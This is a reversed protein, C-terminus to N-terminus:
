MGHVPTGLGFIGGTPPPRSRRKISPLYTNERPCLPRLALSNATGGSTYTHHPTLPFGALRLLLATVFTVREEMKGIVAYCTAHDVTIFYTSACFVVTFTIGVPTTPTLVQPLALVSSSLSLDIAPHVPIQRKSQQLRQFRRIARERAFRPYAPPFPSDLIREANDLVVFMKKPPLLSWLLAIVASRDSTTTISLITSLPTPAEEITSSPRQM